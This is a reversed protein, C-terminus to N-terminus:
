GQQESVQLLDVVRDEPPPVVDVGVGFDYLEIVVTMSDPATTGEGASVVGVDYSIRRLRGAADIWVDAKMDSSRAQAILSQMSPRTEDSVERAVRALDLTAEYRTTAVGRVVEEGRETVDRTVGRLLELAQTPDGQSLQTLQGLDTRNARAAAALDLKIWPRTPALANTLFPMKLYLVVGDVIMEVEAEGAPVDSPQRVLASMDFTMEGRRNAYDFVGDGTLLLPESGEPLDFAAAYSVRATGEGRTREAAQVVTAGPSLEANCSLALLAVVSSLRICTRRM